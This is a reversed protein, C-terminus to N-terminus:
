RPRRPRRSRQIAATQGTASQVLGAFGGIVARAVDAAESGPRTVVFIAAVVLVGVAIDGVKHM